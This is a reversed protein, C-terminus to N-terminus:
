VLLLVLLYVIWGTVVVGLARWATTFDLAQRVAMVMAMLMWVSVLFLLLPGVVPVLGLVGFVGPAAAFGTTRMLEPVNSSTQPEPVMKTGILFVLGAWMVWGALAFLVGLFLPGARTGAGAAATGIGTALSSLVVVTLAQGLAGGDREVEEYVGADLRM